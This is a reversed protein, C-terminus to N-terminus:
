CCITRRTSSARDNHLQARHLQARLQDSVSVAHSQAAAELLAPDSLERSRDGFAQLQYLM